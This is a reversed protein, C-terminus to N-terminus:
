QQSDYKMPEPVSAPALSGTSGEVWSWTSFFANTYKNANDALHDTFTEIM